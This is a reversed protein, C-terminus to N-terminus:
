RGVARALPRSAPLGFISPAAKEPRDHGALDHPHIFEDAFWPYRKPDFVTKLWDIFMSVRRVSRADPHYTMWVDVQHKLGIDVPILDSGLGVIYTPLPGIGMGLEIARGHATSTNTRLAVVSDISAWKLARAPADEDVQPAKQHLLRHHRVEDITRPLGFTQAYARSAFPYVHLRGLRVTKADPRSPQELLIAVDAEMRMVDAVDMTCRLDVITAPNTRSFQALQPLIWATGLGETVSCRVMGRMALDRDLHARLSHSAREMEQAARFVHHGEGTLALGDPLRDFLRFDLVKELREIRRLATSTSTRLLSAAKRFSLTRAVVVFVRLDDWSLREILAVGIPQETKAADRQSLKAVPGRV